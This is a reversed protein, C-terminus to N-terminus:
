IIGSKINSILGQVGFGRRGTRSIWKGTSPWFDVFGNAGEVVFHYGHNKSVFPIGSEKLRSTYDELRDAKEEKKIERLMKFDEAMDGM